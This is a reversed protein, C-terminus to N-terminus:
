RKLENIEAELAATNNKAAVLAAVKEALTREAIYADLAGEDGLLDWKVKFCTLCSEPTLMEGAEQLLFPIAHAMIKMWHEDSIDHTM